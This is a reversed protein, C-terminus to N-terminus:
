YVKFIAESASLDAGFVIIPLFVLSVDRLYKLTDQFSYPHLQKCNKNIDQAIRATDSKPRPSNIKPLAHGVRTHFINTRKHM